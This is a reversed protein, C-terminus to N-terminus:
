HDHSHAAEGDHSHGHPAHGGGFVVLAGLIVIILVMPVIVEPKLLKKM